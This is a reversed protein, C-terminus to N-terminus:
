NQTQPTPHTPHPPAWRDQPSGSTLVKGNVGLDGEYRGRNRWAKRSLNEMYCNKKKKPPPHPPPPPDAWQTTVRLDLGKWLCGLWGWVQRLEGADEPCTKCNINIHIYVYYYYNHTILFQMKDRGLNCNILLIFNYQWRLSFPMSYFLLSLNGSSKSKHGHTVCIPPTITSSM